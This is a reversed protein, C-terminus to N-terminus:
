VPDQDTIVPKITRTPLRSKLKLFPMEIYRYTLMAVLWCLVASAAIRITLETLHASSTLLAMKNQSFVIPFLLYFLIPVHTLYLSYSITGLHAAFKNAFIWKFAVPGLSSYLILSWLVAEVDHYAPFNMIANQQGSGGYYALLGLLAAIASIFISNAFLRSRLLRQGTETQHVCSLTGGALFATARGFISNGITVYTGSWGPHQVRLGLWVALLTVAILQGRKNTMLLM